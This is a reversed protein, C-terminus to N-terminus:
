VMEYFSHLPLCLMGWNSMEGACNSYRNIWLNPTCLYLYESMSTEIELQHSSFKLHGIMSCLVRSQYTDTYSPRIIFRDKLLQLYITKYHTMKKGIPMREDDVKTISNLPILNFWITRKVSRDHGLAPLRLELRANSWVM